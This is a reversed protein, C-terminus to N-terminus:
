TQTSGGVIHQKCYEWMFLAGTVHVNLSRLLGFQPIEITHDLFGLINSPIGEKEHGLIMICKRPFSFKILNKSDVTQEAGVIEFGEAQKEKLFEELNSPTVEIINLNKEATMSVSKFDQNETLKKSSLVLNRIGLVECTRAIGGLNPIKDILSAVVFMIVRSNESIDVDTISSMAYLDQEPNMKRQMNILKSKDCKLQDLSITEEIVRRIKKEFIHQSSKYKEYDLNSMYEEAPAMTIFMIVNFFNEPNSLYIYPLMVRVDDLLEDRRPSLASGIAERLYDRYNTVHDTNGRNNQIIKYLVLQAYLRTQFHPGMTLSLLKQIIADFKEDCLTRRHLVTYCHVISILSVQQSPTYNSINNLKGLITDDDSDCTALAVLIEFMYTINLQNNYNLLLDYIEENSVRAHPMLSIIARLLRMKMRHEVSNEFYRPKKLSLAKLKNFLQSLIAMTYQLPVSSAFKVRMQQLRPCQKEDTKLLYLEEIRADGFNVDGMLIGEIYTKEQLVIDSNLVATCIGINENDSCIMKNAYDELQSSSCRFKLYKILNTTVSYCLSQMRSCTKLVKLFTDIISFDIIDTTNAVLESLKELTKSSVTTLIDEIKTMYKYLDSFTKIYEKIFFDPFKKRIFAATIEDDAFKSMIKDYIKKYPIDIFNDLDLDWFMQCTNRVDKKNESEFVIMLSIWKFNGKEARNIDKLYGVIEYLFLSQKVNAYFEKGDNTNACKLDPEFYTFDDNLNNTVIEYFRQSISFSYGNEISIKLKECFTRFNNFPDTVNYLTEILVIYESLRMCNIVECFIDECLKIIKIRMLPNQLGRIRAALKLLLEKSRFNINPKYTYIRALWFHLPVSRLNVEAMSEMFRCVDDDLFKKITNLPLCFEDWNYLCTNNLANVFELLVDASLDSCTFTNLIYYIAWRSVVINQHSLIKIYLTDQWKKFDNNKFYKQKINKLCPIILHSQNEELNELITIYSMWFNNVDLDGSRKMKKMLYLAAKREEIVESKLLKYALREVNESIELDNENILDDFFHILVYTVNLTINESKNISSLLKRRMKEVIKFDSYSKSYIKLCLLMDSLLVKGWTRSFLLDLLVESWRSTLEFNSAGSSLNKSLTKVINYIVQAIYKLSFEDQNYLKLLHEFYEGIDLTAGNKLEIETAHRILSVKLAPLSKKPLVNAAKLEKEIAELQVSLAIYPIRDISSEGLEGM